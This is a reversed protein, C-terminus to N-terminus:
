IPTLEEMYTVRVSYNSTQESMHTAQLILHTIAGLIINYTDLRGVFAQEIQLPCVTQKDEM